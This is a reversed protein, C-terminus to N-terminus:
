SGGIWSSIVSVPRLSAIVIEDQAVCPARGAFEAVAELSARVGAVFVIRTPAVAVPAM